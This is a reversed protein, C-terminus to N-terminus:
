LFKFTKKEFEGNEIRATFEGNMMGYIFAVGVVYHHEKDAPAIILPVKSGPLICIETGPELHLPGQGVYGLNTVFLSSLFTANEVRTMFQEISEQSDFDEPEPIGFDPLEDAEGWFGKYIEYAALDSLARIGNNERCYSFLHDVAGTAALFDLHFSLSSDNEGIDLLPFEQCFISFEPRHNIIGRRISAVLWHIFGVAGYIDSEQGSFSYTAFRSVQFLANIFPLGEPHKRQVNASIFKALIIETNGSDPFPAVAALHDVVYGKSILIAGSQSLSIEPKSGELLGPGEYIRPIQIWGSSSPIVRLDPAWTPHSPLLPLYRQVGIGNVGDFYLIGDQSAIYFFVDMYTSSITSNYDIGLNCSKGKFMGLAGYVKDRYDVCHCTRVHCIIEAMRDRQPPMSVIRPIRVALGPVTESLRSDHNSSIFDRLACNFLLLRNICLSDRGCRIVVTSPIMIEQQIWLREWYENGLIRKLAWFRSDHILQESEPTGPDIRSMPSRWTDLIELLVRACEHVENVHLSLVNVGDIILSPANSTWEHILQFAETSDDDCGLWAHVIEARSYLKAMLAVQSSREAIDFQNICVADVWITITDQSDRIHRLALELNSRVELVVHNIIINSIPRPDGWQYSLCDYRPSEQLSVTYMSCTVPDNPQGAPDLKLLRIEERSENLSLYLLSPQASEPLVDNNMGAPKRAAHVLSM